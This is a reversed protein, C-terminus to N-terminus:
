VLGVFWLLPQSKRPTSRRPLYPQRVGRPHPPGATLAVSLRLLEFRGSSGLGGSGWAPNMPSSASANAAASAAKDPARQKALQEEAKETGVREREEEAKM